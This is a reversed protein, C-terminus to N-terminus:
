VKKKEIKISMDIPKGNSDMVGILYGRGKYESRAKSLAVSYAKEPSAYWGTSNFLVDSHRNNKWVM